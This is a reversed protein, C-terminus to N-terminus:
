GARRGVVHAAVPLFMGEERCHYTTGAVADTIDKSGTVHHDVKKGAVLLGKVEEMYGPVYYMDLAEDYHAELWVDYARSDRDVSFLEVPVGKAELQQMTDRSQFQDFTVKGFTFKRRLLEWFISRVRGFDVIGEEKPDIVYCLDIMTKHAEQHGFCMVCKDKAFGLDNHSWYVMSPIPQLWERLTGDPAVPSERDRNIQIADPRLVFARSSTIIISAKDRLFRRPNRIFSKYLKEPISIVDERATYPRPKGRELVKATSRKVTFYPAWKGPKSLWYPRRTVYGFSSEKAAQFEKLMFGDVLRISSMLLILGRDGFRTEIRDKLAVYVNEAQDLSDGVRSRKLFWDGEDLMGVLVNYGIPVTESSSGSMVIVRNPFEMETGTVSTPMYHKRFWPTRELHEQIQEFIIGKAQKERLSAIVLAVKSGPMLGFVKAPDDVLSLLYLVYTFALVAFTSKGSGVGDLKVVENINHRFTANLDERISPWVHPGVKLIEDLFYNVGRIKDRVFKKGTRKRVEFLHREIM